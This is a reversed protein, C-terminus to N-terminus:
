KRGESSPASQCVFPAVFNNGEASNNIWIYGVNYVRTLLMGSPYKGNVSVEINPSPWWRVYTFETGDPHAWGAASTYVLGIFIRGDNGDDYGTAHALESIYVSINM